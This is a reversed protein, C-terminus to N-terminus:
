KSKFFDIGMGLITLFGGVIMDRLDKLRGFHRTDEHRGKPIFGVAELVAPCRASRRHQVAIGQTHNTTGIGPNNPDFFCIVRQYNLLNSNFIAM